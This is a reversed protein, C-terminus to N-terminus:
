MVDSVTCGASSQLIDFRKRGGTNGERTHNWKQNVFLQLATSIKGDSCTCENNYEILLVKFCNIIVNELYIHCYNYRHTEIVFLHMPQIAKFGSCINFKPHHCNFWDWEKTNREKNKRGTNEGKEVTEKWQAWLRIILRSVAWAVYSHSETRGWSTVWILNASDRKKITIVRRLKIKKKQTTASTTSRSSRPINVM